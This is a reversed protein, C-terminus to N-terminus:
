ENKFMFENDVENTFHYGEWTCGKFFGDNGIKGYCRTFNDPNSLFMKQNDESMPRKDASQMKGDPRFHGRGEYIKLGSPTNEREYWSIIHGHTNWTDDFHRESYNHRGKCYEYSGFHAPKQIKQARFM